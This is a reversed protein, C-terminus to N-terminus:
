SKLRSNSDVYVFDDICYVFAYIDRGAGPIYSALSVIFRGRFPLCYIFAYTGPGASPFSSLLPLISPLRAGM